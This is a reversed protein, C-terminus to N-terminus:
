VCPGEEEGVCVIAERNYGIQELYCLAKKGIREGPAIVSVGPPYPALQEAAAAGAADAFPVRRKAGFVAARPSCAQEGIPPPPPMASAPREAGRLGLADLGRRLRNLEEPGDCDTLIFVVHGRDAMEPYIGMAQLAREVAFGDEVCLTFRTPDLPADTDTLSPYDRRLRAVERATRRYREAGEGQGYERVWDLAAMMPYSPSSTAVLMSAERLQELTIGNRAFLLASQGPARLTKHASCVVLDAGAYVGPMLMPLHAGHAADVVLRAGHARCVRAIGPVDSLVGYYSPSTICVTKVRDGPTQCAPVSNSLMNYNKNLYNGNAKGVNVQRLAQEVQEATLPGAVGSEPLWPRELWRPHLDLLVFATHVSRHSMRDSLVTDGPRAACLLATHVGQTSGGTLFLCCEMGWWEAWLTEAAEIPGGSAYLNGTPPLETFDLRTFRTGLPRVSKGKHGPMAMRLPNGDAFRCLADYLPMPM